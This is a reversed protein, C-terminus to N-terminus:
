VRIYRRIYTIRQSMPNRVICSLWIPKIRIYQMCYFLYIVVTLFLMNGIILKESISYLFKNLSYNFICYM